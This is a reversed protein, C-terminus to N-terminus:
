PEGLESKLRSIEGMLAQLMDPETVSGGGSSPPQSPPQRPSYLPRNGALGAQATQPRSGATMSQAPSTNNPTLQQGYLPNSGQGSANMLTAPPMSNMNMLNIETQMGGTQQQQLQQQQQQQAMHAMGYMQHMSNMPQMAMAMPMAMHNMFGTGILGGQYRITQMKSILQVLQTQSIGAGFSPGELWGDVGSSEIIERVPGMPLWGFACVRQGM